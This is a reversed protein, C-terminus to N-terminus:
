DLHVSILVKSSYRKKWPFSTLSKLFYEIIVFLLLNLFKCKNKLLARWLNKLLKHGYLTRGGRGRVGQPIVDMSKLWLLVKLGRFIKWHAGTIDSLWSSNASALHLSKHAQSIWILWTPNNMRFSTAWSKWLSWNKWIFNWIEYNLTKEKQERLEFIISITHSIPFQFIKLYVLILLLIVIVLLFQM